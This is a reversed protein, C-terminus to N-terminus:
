RRDEVINEIAKNFDSMINVALKFICVLAYYVCMYDVYPRLTLALHLNSTGIATTLVNEM